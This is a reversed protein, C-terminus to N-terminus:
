LSSPSLDRSRTGTSRGGVRGYRKKEASGGVRPLTAAVEARITAAELAAQLQAIQQRLHEVHQELESLSRRKRGPRQRQLSALAGAVADHRVQELRSSGIGLRACGEQVRCAGTLIQVTVQFREKAEESAEFQDLYEWGAPYRGRM